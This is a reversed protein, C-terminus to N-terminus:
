EVGVRLSCVRSRVIAVASILGAAAVVAKQTLAAGEQATHRQIYRTRAWCRCCMMNPCGPCILSCSATSAAACSRKSYRSSTPAWSASAPQWTVHWRESCGATAASASPCADDAGALAVTSPTSSSCLGSLHSARLRRQMRLSHAAAERYCRLRSSPQM